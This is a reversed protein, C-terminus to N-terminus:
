KEASSENKYATKLPQTGEQTTTDGSERLRSYETNNM